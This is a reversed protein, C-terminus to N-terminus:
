EATDMWKMIRELLKKKRGLSLNRLLGIISSELDSHEQLCKEIGPKSCADYDM